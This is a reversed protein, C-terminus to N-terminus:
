LGCTQGRSQNLTDCVLHNQCTNPNDSQGLYLIATMPIDHWERPLKEVVQFPYAVGLLVAQPMRKLFRDYYGAGRGLRHGSQDFALGPVLAVDMEEPPIEQANENPQFIGYAGVQLDNHGTYARLVMHKGQVVPLAVKKGLRLLEDMLMRLDVENGLPYYLLLTQAQQVCTLTLAKQCIAKSYEAVEQHSLQHRLHSMEARLVKKSM